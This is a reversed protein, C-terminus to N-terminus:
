LNVNGTINGFVNGGTVQGVGQNQNGMVHQVIQTGSTGDPADEQM